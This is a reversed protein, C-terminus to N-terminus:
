LISTDIQHLYLNYGYLRPLSVLIYPIYVYIQFWHSLQMYICCTKDKVQLQRYKGLILVFPVFLPTMNNCLNIQLSGPSLWLCIIHEINNWIYEMTRSWSRFWCEASTSITVMQWVTLVDSDTCNSFATLIKVSFSEPRSSNRPTTLFTISLQKPRSKFTSWDVCVSSPPAEGLPSALLETYELTDPRLIRWVSLNWPKRSSSFEVVTLGFFSNLGWLRFLLLFM